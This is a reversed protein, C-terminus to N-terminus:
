GSAAAAHDAQCLLNAHRLRRESAVQVGRHADTVGHASAGAGPRWCHVRQEAVELGDVERCRAYAPDVSLATLDEAIQWALSM